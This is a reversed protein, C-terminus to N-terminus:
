NNVLYLNVCSEIEDYTFCRQGSTSDCNNFNDEVNYLFDISEETNLLIDSEHHTMFNGFTDMFSDFKNM